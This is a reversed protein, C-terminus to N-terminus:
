EASGGACSAPRDARVAPRGRTPSVASIGIGRAIARRSRGCSPTVPHRKARLRGAGTNWTALDVEEAFDGAVLRCQTALTELTVSPSWLSARRVCTRHGDPWPGAAAM